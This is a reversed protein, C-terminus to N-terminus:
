KHQEITTNKYKYNVNFIQIIQTDSHSLHLTIINYIICICIIYYMYRRLIIDFLAHESLVKSVNSSEFRCIVESYNKKDRGILSSHV